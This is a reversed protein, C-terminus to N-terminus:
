EEQDLEAMFIHGCDICEVEAFSYGLVLLNFHKENGCEQCYTNEDLM